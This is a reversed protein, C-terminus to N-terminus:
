SLFSLLIFFIRVITLGSLVAAHLSLEYPLLGGGGGGCQWEHRLHRTRSRKQLDANVCPKLGREM